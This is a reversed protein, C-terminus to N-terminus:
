GPFAPPPAQPPMVFFTSLWSDFHDGNVTLRYEYNQGPVLPMGPAINICLHQRISSGHPLGPPRGVEFGAEIHLAPMPQGLPGQQFSVPQGDSDLLDIELKHATNTQDWPCDIIAVLAMPPTPSPVANWALGLAHAKGAQDAQASDALILTAQMAM